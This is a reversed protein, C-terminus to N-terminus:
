ILNLITFLFTKQQARCVSSYKGLNIKFHKYYADKRYLCNQSENSESSEIPKILFQKSNINYENKIEISDKKEVKMHNKQEINEIIHTKKKRERKKSINNNHEINFLKKNEKYVKKNNNFDNEKKILLGISDEFDLGFNSIINEDEKEPTFM